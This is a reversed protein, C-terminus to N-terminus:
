PIYFSDLGIPPLENLTCSDSDNEIAVCDVLKDAYPGSAIYPQLNSYDPNLKAGGDILQPESSGSGGCGFLLLSLISLVVLKM